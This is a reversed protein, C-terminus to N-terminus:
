GKGEKNCQDSMTDLEKHGRTEQIAYSQKGDSSGPLGNLDLMLSLVEATTVATREAGLVPYVQHIHQM